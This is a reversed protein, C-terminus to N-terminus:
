CPDVPGLCRRHLGRKVDRRILAPRRLPVSGPRLALAEDLVAGPGRAQIVEAVKQGRTLLRVDGCDGYASGQKESQDTNESSAVRFIGDRM